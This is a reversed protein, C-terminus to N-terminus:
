LLEKRPVPYFNIAELRSKITPLLKSPRATTLIILSDGKPEELTKLLASQAEITLRDADVVLALKIKEDFAKTQFFHKLNRVEDIGIITSGRNINVLDPNDLKPLKLLSLLFNEATTRKGVSKPGIFLYAHALQNKSRAIKLYKVIQRHGIIGM